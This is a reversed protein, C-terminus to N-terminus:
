YTRRRPDAVLRLDRKIVQNAGWCHYAGPDGTIPQLPSGLLRFPYEDAAGDDGATACFFIVRADRDFGHGARFEEDDADGTIKADAVARWEDLPRSVEVAVFTRQGPALVTADTETTGAPVTRRRLIVTATGDNIVSFGVAVHLPKDDTRPFRVPLDLDNVVRMEDHPVITITPAQADIRTKIAEAVLNRSTAQETRALNLAEGAKAAASEAIKTSRRIEYALWAVIGTAILAAVLTLWDAITSM